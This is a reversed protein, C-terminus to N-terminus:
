ICFNRNLFVSESVGDGKCFIQTLVNLFVMPKFLDESGDISRYSLRCFSSISGKIRVRVKKHFFSSLESIRFKFAPYSIKNNRSILFILGVFSFFFGM